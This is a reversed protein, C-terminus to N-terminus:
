MEEMIKTCFDIITKAIDIDAIESLGHFEVGSNVEVIKLGNETEIVDVGLLSGRTSKETVADAADLVIKKLEPTIPCEQVDGGRATNTIWHASQRYMAAVVQNGVVLARIDRGNKKNIYEQIYFVTHHLFSGLVKKHELISEAAERDNIKSLLRGWSGVTPKMVVPYGFEEITQLAAEESFCLKTRPSPVNNEYLKVNTLFKDGCVAITHFDNIAIKHNAELVKALYYNKTHSISRLLVADCKLIENWTSNSSKKSHVLDFSLESDKLKILEIKKSNEGAEFLKKEEFRPHSYFIGLKM